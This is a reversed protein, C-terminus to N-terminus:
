REEYEKLLGYKLNTFISEHYKIRDQFLQLVRAIEDQEEISPMKITLTYLKKWDVNRRCASAGPTTASYLVKKMAETKIFYSM